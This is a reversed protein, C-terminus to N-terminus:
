LICIICFINHKHIVLCCFLVTYCYLVRCLVDYMTVLLVVVWPVLKKARNHIKRSGPFRDLTNCSSQKWRLKGSYLHRFPWSGTWYDLEGWHIWQGVVRTAAPVVEYTQPWYVSSMLERETETAVRMALVHSASLFSPKSEKVGSTSIKKDGDFVFCGNSLLLFM